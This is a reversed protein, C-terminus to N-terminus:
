RGWGFWFHGALYVPGIATWAVIPVGLWPYRWVWQSVTPLRRLSLYGDLLGGAASVLLWATLVLAPQYSAPTLM